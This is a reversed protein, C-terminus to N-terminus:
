DKHIGEQELVWQKLWPVREGDPAIYLPHRVARHWFSMSRDHINIYPDNFVRKLADYFAECERQMGLIRLCRLIRTIRLHNHDMRIAWNRFATKWNDGRIIYYGVSKQSPPQAETNESGAAEPVVAESGPIGQPENSPVSGSTGLAGASTESATVNTTGDAAGDACEQAIPGSAAILNKEHVIEPAPEEAQKATESAEMATGQEPESGAGAQREDQEEDEEDEDSEDREPDTSVVFGYFKLIRNFAEGLRERLEHRSRFAEMVERNIIPASYSFMSGEPLPFLVQIYDHSRELQRDSWQLIDDLTRGHADTDAMQPDYFRIILPIKPGMKKDKGKAPPWIHFPNPFSNMTPDELPFDLLKLRKTSLVHNSLPDFNPTTDEYRISQPQSNTRKLLQSFFSTRASRLKQKDSESPTDEM